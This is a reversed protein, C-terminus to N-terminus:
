GQLGLGLDIPTVVLQLLVGEIAELLYEWLAETLVM